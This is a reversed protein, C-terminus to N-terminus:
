IRRRRTSRRTTRRRVPRRRRDGRGQDAPGRRFLDRRSRGAAEAQRQARARDQGHLHAPRPHHGRRFLRRQRPRGLAKGDERVNFWQGTGLVSKGRFFVVQGRGAPPPGIKILGPALEPFPTSSAGVGRPARGLSPLSVAKATKAMGSAGAPLVVDGGHIAMAM